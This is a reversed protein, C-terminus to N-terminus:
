FQDKIDSPGLSSSDFSWLVPNQSWFFFRNQFLKESKNFDGQVVVWWSCCGNDGDHNANVWLATCSM